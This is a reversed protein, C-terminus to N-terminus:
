KREREKEKDRAIRRVERLEAMSVAKQEKL